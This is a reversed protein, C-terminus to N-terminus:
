VKSGANAPTFSSQVTETTQLAQCPQSISPGYTDCYGCNTEDVGGFHGMEIMNACFEEMPARCLTWDNIAAKPDHCTTNPSTHLM